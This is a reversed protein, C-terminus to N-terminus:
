IGLVAVGGNLWDLGALRLLLTYTSNSSFDFIDDDELGHDGPLVPVAINKGRAEMEGLVRCVYDSNLDARLTWSANLYGFVVALNPINSFM